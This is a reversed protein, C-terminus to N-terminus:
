QSLKFLTLLFSSLCMKNKRKRVEYDAQILACLCLAWLSYYIAASEREGELKSYVCLQVLFSSLLMKKRHKSVKNGIRQLAFPFLAQLSKYIAVSEKEKQNNFLCLYVLFRQEFANQEINKM